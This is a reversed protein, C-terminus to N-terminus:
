AFFEKTASAIYYEHKYKKPEDLAYSGEDKKRMRYVVFITCLITCLLGALAGAIMAALTAPSRFFDDPYTKYYVEVDVNTGGGGTATNDDKGTNGKGKGGPRSTSVEIGTGSDTSPTIYKERFDQLHQQAFNKRNTQKNSKLVKLDKFFGNKMSSIRQRYEEVNTNEPVWVLAKFKHSRATGIRSSFSSETDTDAARRIRLQEITIDEHEVIAPQSLDGNPGGNRNLANILQELAEYKFEQSNPNSTFHFKTSFKIEIMVYAVENTTQDDDDTIMGSGSSLFESDDGDDRTYQTSSYSLTSLIIMFCFVINSSKMKM